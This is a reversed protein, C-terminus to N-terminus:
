NRQASISTIHHIGNPNMPASTKGGTCGPLARQRYLKGSRM